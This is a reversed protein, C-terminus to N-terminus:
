AREQYKSALVRRGCSVQEFHSGGKISKQGEYRQQKNDYGHDNTHENADMSNGVNDM